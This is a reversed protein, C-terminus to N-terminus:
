CGKPVSWCEETGFSSMLERADGQFACVLKTGCDQLADSINATGARNEAPGALVIHLADAEKLKVPGHLLVVWCESMSMLLMSMVM